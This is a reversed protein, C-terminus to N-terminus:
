NFSSSQTDQRIRDDELFAGRVFRVSTEPVDATPQRLLAVPPKAVGLREALRGLRCSVLSTHSAEQTKSYNTSKPRSFDLSERQQDLITPQQPNLQPDNFSFCVGFIGPRFTGFGSSTRGMLLSWDELALSALDVSTPRRVRGKTTGKADSESVVQHPSPM